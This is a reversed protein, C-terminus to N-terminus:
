FLMQQKSHVPMNEFEFRACIQWPLTGEVRKLLLMSDAV